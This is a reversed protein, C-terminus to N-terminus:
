RVMGGYRTAPRFNGAHLFTKVVTEYSGYGQLRHLGNCRAGRNKVGSDIENGPFLFIIQSEM